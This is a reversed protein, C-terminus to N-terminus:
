LFYEKLIINLIKKARAECTGHTMLWRRQEMLLEIYEKSPIGNKLDVLNNFLFNLEENNSYSITPFNEPSCLIPKKNYEKFLVLAGAAIIEYMRLSDWGGKKCCLGFWSESMDKYYDEETTFQYTPRGSIFQFKTDQEFCFKPATKQYVKNKKFSFPKIKDLPIGFGTGYVNPHEEYLERKFCPTKRIFWDDHGDIYYIHPTLKNFEHYDTIGYANTVGYIIIDKETIEAPDFRKNIDEIPTTCLTFGRGHLEDLPSEDFEGYLVKKRPYDIILSGLISRLGRLIIIEQFDGQLKPDKTTFYFIRM